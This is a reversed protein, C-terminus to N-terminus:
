RTIASMDDPLYLIMDDLEKVTYRKSAAGCVAASCFILILACLIATIKKAKIAKMLSDGVGSLTNNM